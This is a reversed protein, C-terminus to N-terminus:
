IFSLAKNDFFPLWSGQCGFLPADAVMALLYLAFVKLLFTQYEISLFGIKPLIVSTNTTWILAQHLPSEIAHRPVNARVIGM